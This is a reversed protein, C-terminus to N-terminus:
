KIQTIETNVNKHFARQKSCYLEYLNWGKYEKGLFYDIVPGIKRFLQEIDGTMYFMKPSKNSIWSRRGIEVIDKAMFAIASKDGSQFDIMNMM